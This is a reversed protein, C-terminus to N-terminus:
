LLRAKACGIRKFNKNWFSFTFNIEFTTFRFFFFFFFFIVIRMYMNIYPWTSFESVQSIESIKSIKKGSNWTRTESKPQLAFEFVRFYPFKFYNKRSKRSKRTKSKGNKWKEFFFTKLIRFCLFLREYM